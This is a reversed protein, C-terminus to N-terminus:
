ALLILALLVIVATEARLVRPGLTINSVAKHAFLNERDEPAFGGEPGVLAAVPRITKLVEQIPVGGTEDAMVITRDEPWDALVDALDTLPDIQPVDLRECQEAAEIAISKFRAGNFSQSDTYRTRIPMIRRVGLETAKQFIMETGSKKIPAFLLWLDPSAKQPRLQDKISLIATKRTASILEASWEGDYGNFVRLRSGTHHRLVNILYHAQQRSLDVVEGSRLTNSLFLRTKPWNTRDPPTHPTVANPQTFPMDQMRCTVTYMHQIDICFLGM